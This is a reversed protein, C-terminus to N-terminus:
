AAADSEQQGLAYREFVDRLEAELLDAVTLPDSEAALQAALRPVVNFAADRLIRFQTFAAVEAEKRSILTRQKEDLDLKKLQADYTEKVARARAFSSSASPPEPTAPGNDEAKPKRKGYRANSHQTNEQWDKDAQDSDITGDPNRTIRGSEIAYQVARKQCGRYKAYATISMLAM